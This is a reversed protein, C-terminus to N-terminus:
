ISMVSEVIQVSSSVSVENSPSDMKTKKGVTTRWKESFQGLTSSTSSLNFSAKTKRIDGTFETV